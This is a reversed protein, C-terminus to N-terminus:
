LPDCGRFATMLGEYLPADPQTCDLAKRVGDILSEATM